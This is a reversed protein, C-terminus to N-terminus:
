AAQKTRSGTLVVTKTELYPLVAEMGGERGIGSQKFGGFAIAFDPRLSNQSVTGAHVSRAVRYAADVDNTFVAASLGYNTDNALRIADDLDEYATVCVVPGFVEEQAIVSSNDVNAFLTPEYFYGREFQPPRHGGMVLTAGDAVAKQVYGDVRDFQRKMSLPGMQTTPEYPDGITVAKLKAALSEVFADHRERSVLYRTLNACFQGTAMTLTPALISTAMEIDFDDLVIAPGKGGLELTVRAVREACVAGIRKGAATSGTFSVKDVGPRHVLYDSVARDATLVNIVGAPFGVAEACEAVIYAELPTEPSPKLIVTCGAVLAPALKVAVSFFPANWPMIAAVVGVPERVLMSVHGPYSSTREEDWVHKDAIQAQFDMLGISWQTSHQSMIFPAGGQGTWAHALEDTREKLKENLRALYGGREAPTMRPWPGHDFAERAAAVARDVDAETAEAVTGTVEETVPSVLELRKGSAPQVWEGGIYFKDPHSVSVKGGFFDVM